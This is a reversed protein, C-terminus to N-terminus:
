LQSGGEPPRAPSNDTGNSAPPIIIVEPEQQGPRLADESLEILCDLSITIPPEINM